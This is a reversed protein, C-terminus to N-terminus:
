RTHKASEKILQEYRDIYAAAMSNASFREEVSKRCDAPDIEDIRLMYEEFEKENDALFGNVGHEIIEPMAGRRMAVVPTGCALAEIVAMGFPEDWNIPFLLAKADSLFDLKARGDINGSYTIKPYRVTYPLIEDSYYKFEENHRHRSFPNALELVLRQNTMISSVTGAMRLRFNHKACIRAAIHQGKDHNFRALTIFYNKKKEKYPFDSLNVANYVPELLIDGLPKPASAALTKSIPVIRLWHNTGLESWFLRNDSRGNALMEKTTFPPGHLTHVAPPLTGSKTAWALVQPGLFNNHDHIIDFAGDEEIMHLAKQVHYTPIALATDYMSEKIFPFQEESYISHLKAGKFKSGGVGFIEVTVGLEVLGQVLASIVMEIGGYGKPPITLWPPAIVAIRLSTNKVSTRRPSKYSPM